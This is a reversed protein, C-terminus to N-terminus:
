RPHQQPGIILMTPTKQVIGRALILASMGIGSGEMVRRRKGSLFAGHAMRSAEDERSCQYVRSTAANSSSISSATSCSDSPFVAFDIGAAKFAKTSSELAEQRYRV